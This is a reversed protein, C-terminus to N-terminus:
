PNWRFDDILWPRPETATSWVQPHTPHGAKTTNLSDFREAGVIAAVERVRCEYWDRRIGSHQGWGAIVIDADAALLGITFDNYPGVAEEYSLANLERPDYARRAFLNAIDCGSFDRARAWATVKAFCVNQEDPYSPNKMIVLLRGRDSTDDLEISWEYRYRETDPITPRALDTMLAM